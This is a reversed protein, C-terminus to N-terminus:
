DDFTVLLKFTVLSNFDLIGLWIESLVTLVKQTLISLNQILNNFSEGKEKATTTPDPIRSSLFVPDPTFM